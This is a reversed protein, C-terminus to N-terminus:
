RQLPSIGIQARDGAPKRTGGTLFRHHSKRKWVHFPRPIRLGIGGQPGRGWSRGRQTRVVFPKFADERLGSIDYTFRSLSTLRSVQLNSKIGMLHLNACVEILDANGVREGLGNMTGQVQTAGASVAFLSNATAMGRDNHAHIGVPVRVEDLVLRTVDYVESPHSGGRTDCLVVRSAGGDEAAKLTSLAYDRNSKFGDFFHEADYIVEKGRSVLYDVSDHIMSQNEEATTRLIREVQFLWSKGFITVTRTGAELLAQLNKDEDPRRNPARTMGFATVHPHLSGDMAKALQFFQLDTPNTENPWGGEVYDVGAEIFAEAVRLKQNSTFNVGVSQNGDRLTTDYVEVLQPSSESPLSDNLLSTRPKSLDM